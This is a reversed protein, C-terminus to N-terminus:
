NYMPQLNAPQPTPAPDAAGLPKIIMDDFYPTSVKWGEQGVILGAMGRPYLASEAKVVEKGDVLGTIKTGEFRLTLKHWGEPNFNKVKCKDLILEGGVSVDRMRKILAQQEADGVLKLKDKKGRSIVLQCNGEADIDMYYGKPVIGYGTGVHEIRGMVGASDDDKLWVNASIEYDAWDRDGIITYHRWDPAWSNTRQAVAQRLAMGKGDPSPTLEFAGCIDATYLPLYGRQEPKTYQDYNDRYPMPFPKSDPINEFEGKQQGRTTSLSYVTNPELTLTFAGGQLKVDECQVFQEQENSKWVCLSKHKLGGSVKVYIQQPEKPRSSPM